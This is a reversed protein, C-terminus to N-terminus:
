RIEQEDTPPPPEAGLEKIFAELVAVRKRVKGLAMNLQVSRNREATLETELVAVRAALLQYDEKSRDLQERVLQVVDEAAKVTVVIAQSGVMAKSQISARYAAVGAAIAMVVSVLATVLAANM